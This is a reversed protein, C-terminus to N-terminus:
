LCSQKAKQKVPKTFTNEKNRELKLENIPQTWWDEEKDNEDEVIAKLQLKNIVDKSLSGISDLLNAGGNTLNKGM